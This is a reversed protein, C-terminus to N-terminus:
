ANLPTFLLLFLYACEAPGLQAICTAHELCCFCIVTDEIDGPDFACFSEFHMALASKSFCTISDNAAEWLSRMAAKAVSTKLMDCAFDREYAITGSSISPGHFRSLSPFCLLACRQWFTRFDLIMQSVYSINSLWEKRHERMFEMMKVYILVNELLPVDLPCKAQRPLLLVDTMSRAGDYIRALGEAVFHVDCIARCAVKECSVIELLNALLFQKEDEISDKSLHVTRGFTSGFKADFAFEAFRSIAGSDIMEQLVADASPSFRFCDFEDRGALDIKDYESRIIVRLNDAKCALFREYFSGFIQVTWLGTSSDAVGRVLGKRSDSCIQVLAGHKLEDAATFGSFIAPPSAVDSARGSPRPEKLPSGFLALKNLQYRFKPESHKQLVFNFIIQM